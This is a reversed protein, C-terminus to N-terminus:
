CEATDLVPEGSELGAFVDRIFARARDPDIVPLFRYNRTPALSGQQIAGTTIDDADLAAMLTVLDPLVRLPINTTMHREITDAIRDFQRLIRFADAQAAVERVLCRQRRTRVIDNSDSRNRAYALATRGDMWHRGPTLELVFEEEDGYKAPSFTVNMSSRVTVYIGGIADVVDVFGAFDVLVYYDIPIALTTELVDVLAEMGPSVTNPYKHTFTHSSPYVANIRDLWIEKPREEPEPDTAQTTGNEEALKAQEFLWDQKSQYENQLRAPLLWGVTERSISILAAQNTTLDMSALIMVDTRLGTRGPGADGGALLITVRNSGVPSLTPDPLDGFEVGGTPIEGRAFTTTTTSSTTTTSPVVSGGLRAADAAIQIRIEAAAAQTDDVFVRDLLTLLRSARTGVFVHPMVLFLVLGAAIAARAGNAWVPSARLELPPALRYSDVAAGVRLAAIVLNAIVLGWVWRPQVLLALLGITGRGYFVIATVLVVLSGALFPIARRPRRLFLHGAGPIALSIAAATIGRWRDPIWQRSTPEAHSSADESASDHKEDRHDDTPEAM